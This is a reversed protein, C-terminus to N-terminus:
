CRKGLVRAGERSATSDTVLDVIARAIKEGGVSSPEIPNAYDATLVCIRRLDIVTLGFEIGIRLIVDNFVTLASSIRRQYVPDPFCGNYITCIALPLHRDRCAKVARRYSEEFKESVEAMADFVEGSWKVATQLIDANM